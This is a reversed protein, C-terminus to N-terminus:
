IYQQVERKLAEIAPASPSKGLKSLTQFIDQSLDLGTSKEGMKNIALNVIHLTDEKATRAVEWGKISVYVQQALNHEYEQQIGDILLRHLQKATMGPRHVRIILNEPAIRELFLIIREYSQMKLPLITKSAANKTRKLQSVEHKKQIFELYKKWMALATWSFIGAPVAFMLVRTLSNLWDM